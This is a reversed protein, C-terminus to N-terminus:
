LIECFDRFKSNIAPAAPSRRGHRDVYERQDALKASRGCQHVQGHYPRACLLIRQPQSPRDAQTSPGAVASRRAGALAVVFGAVTGALVLAFLDVMQENRMGLVNMLGTIGVTQESLAVRFLLVAVTFRLVFPRGLFRVDLLPHSRNLDVLTALGFCAVAGALCYGLWESDRWWHLRGQTLVVCLLAIGATFLPFSILDGRSFANQTPTPALKVANVAALAQTV